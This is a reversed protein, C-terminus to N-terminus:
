SRKMYSGVALVFTSVLGLIVAAWVPLEIDQLSAAIPGLVNSFFVYLVGGGGAVILVMGLLYRKFSM